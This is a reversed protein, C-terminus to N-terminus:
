QEKLCYQEHTSEAQQHGSAVATKLLSCVTDMEGKNILILAKLYECKGSLPNMETLVIDIHKLAKKYDNAVYYATAANERHVYDLPNLQLAKEFNEAAPIYNGKNFLQQGLNSFAIAEGIRENGLAITRYLQTFSQDEPFRDIATQARAMLVQDGPATVQASIILFNKWNLPNNNRTLPEFTEEIRKWDKRQALLTLYNSSHLGNNPLNLFAKRGYVLASDLLGQETYIQSKLYESYYLYPNATTGEELLKLAKDYKKHHFYYRAKVSKLPITTVTINPIDPVIGDVKDLPLDFKGTNFDQLLYMQGKHSQYVSNSVYICVVLLGVALSLFFRSLGLNKIKQLPAKQTTIMYYNLLAMIMTWVVLVQPRAIPFNLNADISYVGLATLLLFVFVKETTKLGKSQLLKYGFFVALVFVGLYLIFGVVGLEAGLQIFDSHAHYPVVYGDMDKRDYHISELKWNGLGVGFISHSKLHTLVDTYYRLRKNISGDNTNASITAARSLADAGKDSIFVQNALIAFVFPILYHGIRFLHQKNKKDRVFLVVNMVIFAVLTFGAAIFSARSQIMSLGFLTAFLLGGLFLKFFLKKSHYILFLAFPIKIALSFATINRNATLGKLNDGIIVGSSRYMELAENLVVYIEIFLIAVIAHSILVAKSKINYLLIGMHLYMLLVNLQRTTNVLAETANIAYFCSLGAWLIFGIYLLSLWSKLTMATRDFFAKHRFILYGAAVLNLLSMALWQPAIKDVAQWNPIFGLCLFCILLLSPVFNFQEVISSKAQPM